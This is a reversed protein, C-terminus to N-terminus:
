PSDERWRRTRLSCASMRGRSVSDERRVERVCSLIRSISEGTGSSVKLMGLRFCSTNACEHWLSLMAMTSDGSPSFLRLFSSSSTSCPNSQMSSSIESINSLQNGRRVARVWRWKWEMYKSVRGGLMVHKVLRSFIVKDFHDSSSESVKPQAWRRWSGLRLATSSSTLLLM